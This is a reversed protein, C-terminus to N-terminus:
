GSVSRRRTEHLKRKKLDEWRLRPSLEKERKSVATLALDRLGVDPNAVVAALLTEYLDHLREVDDGEFLDSSYTWAASLGTPRETIWLTLDLRAAESDSALSRIALESLKPLPPLASQVGFAVQFPARGGADRLRLEAVLREFPLQQHAFADLCSQRVRQLLRRFSLDGALSVRLPLMNFFCGILGEAELRDRGSVAALVVLDEQKTARHLLAQFVGLLLMFLTVKEHRALARLMPELGAPLPFTRRGGHRTRVAPAQRVAPPLAAPPNSGLQGHWFALLQDLASGCLYQRQWSSWDAYQVPLPPLTPRENHARAEYCIVLERVLIGMSWADSIIHHQCL